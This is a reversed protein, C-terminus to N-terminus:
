GNLIEKFRGDNEMLKKLKEQCRYKRTRATHENKLKLKEAIETMNKKDFFLRLLQQCFNGLKAFNTRFINDMERNALEKEINFNDKLTNDDPITVTQNAKKRRKAQFTLHCVSFLYTYFRSTLQFDLSQAKQIIIMLADQFVDKADERTGGNKLIHSTIRPAFNQYIAELVEDKGELLGKIYDEDQM